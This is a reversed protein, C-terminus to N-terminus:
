FERNGLHALWITSNKAHKILSIICGKKAKMMPTLEQITEMRKGDERVQLDISEKEKTDPAVKGKTESLKDFM